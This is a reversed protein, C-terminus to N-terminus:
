MGGCVHGSCIQDSDGTESCVGWCHGTRRNLKVWCCLALQWAAGERAGQGMVACDWTLPDGKRHIVSETKCMGLM